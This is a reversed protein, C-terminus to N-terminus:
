DFATPKANQVAHIWAASQDGAQQALEYLEPGFRWLSSITSRAELLRRIPPRVPKSPNLRAATIKKRWEYALLDAMQLPPLREDPGFALITGYKKPGMVRNFHDRARVYAKSAANEVAKKEDLVFNFGQGGPFRSISITFLKFFLLHWIEDRPIAEFSAPVEVASGVPYLVPALKSDILIDTAKTFAETEQQFSWGKFRSRKIKDREVIEAAHFAPCPQGDPMTLTELMASWASSLRDWDEPYAAWGALSYTQGDDSEDCYLDLVTV